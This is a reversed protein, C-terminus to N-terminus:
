FINFYYKKIRLFFDGVLDTLYYEGKINKRVKKIYSQLLEKQFYIIGSNVENIKEEISCNKEEVIQVINGESNRIIRGYGSPSLPKSTTLLFDGKNNIFKKIANRLTKYEIFPTDGNLVIVQSKKNM